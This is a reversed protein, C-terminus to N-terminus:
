WASVRIFVLLERLVLWERNTRVSPIVFSGMTLYDMILAFSLTWTDELVVLRLEVDVNCPVGGGM